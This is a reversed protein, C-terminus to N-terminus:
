DIGFNDSVYTFLFYSNLQLQLINTNIEKM